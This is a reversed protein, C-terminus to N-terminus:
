GWIAMFLIMKLARSGRIEICREGEETGGKKGYLEDSFVKLFVVALSREVLWWSLSSYSSLM